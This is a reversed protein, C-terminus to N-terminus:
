WWQWRDNLQKNKHKPRPKEAKPTTKGLKKNPLQNAM